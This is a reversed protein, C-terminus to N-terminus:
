DMGGKEKWSREEESGGGLFGGIEGGVFEEWCGGFMGGMGM